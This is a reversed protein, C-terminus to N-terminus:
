KLFFLGLFFGMYIRLKSRMRVRLFQRTHLLGHATIASFCVICWKRESSSTFHQTYVSSNVGSHNLGSNYKEKRVGTVVCHSGM